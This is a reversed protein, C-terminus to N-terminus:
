SHYHVHGYAVQVTPGTLWIDEFSEGNKKWRVSLEGGLTKVNVQSVKQNQAWVLAAATVGTGCSLTEDEVGREYTRISIHSSHNEVFNVNIGEKEFNESYRITAGEKKVDLQVLSREIVCHPSGTDLCSYDQENSIENVNKMHVSIGNDSWTAKHLGDTATFIAEDQIVGLRHAFDVICRSGNGCFSSQSGDSNFYVMHFDHGETSTQLLILGDAGIGFRRQCLGAIFDTDNIPFTSKRDDILIFDNGTGHYKHYAIIM